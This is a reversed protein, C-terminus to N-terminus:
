RRAPETLREGAALGYRLFLHDDHRRLSLLDGRVLGDRLPEVGELLSLRTQASGGTLLPSVTLFLEDVLGAAVFAGFTRPGAEFLILRHGRGQVAAVVSSPALAADDALPVVEAPLGRLRAAGVSTTLVVTRGALAPHATDIAGSGTLIVLEPREPQGRVRRLEALLEASAPHARAPSWTGTPSGALTGSATVVADALGRLLAMVFRDAESGASILKNSQPIAPLAVTGDVSSVFNAYVTPRAFGLGGGYLRELPATLETPALAPAEFLAELPTFTTTVGM